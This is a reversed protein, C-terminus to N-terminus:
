FLSEVLGKIGTSWWIVISDCAGCAQISGGSVIPTGKHFAQMSPHYRGGVFIHVVHFWCLIMDNESQNSCMESVDLFLIFLSM